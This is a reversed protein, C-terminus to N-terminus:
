DAKGHAAAAADFADERARRRHFPLSMAKAMAVDGRMQAARMEAILVPRLVMHRQRTVEAEKRVVPLLDM